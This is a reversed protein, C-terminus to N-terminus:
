ADILLMNINHARVAQHGPDDVDCRVQGHSRLPLPFKFSEGRALGEWLPLNGLQLDGGGGQGGRLSSFFTPNKSSHTVKDASLLM